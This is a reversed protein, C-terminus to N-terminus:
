SSYDAASASKSTFQAGSPLFGLLQRSM